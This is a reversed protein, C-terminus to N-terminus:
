SWQLGVQQRKDGVLQQRGGVQRLQVGVLGQLIMHQELQQRECLQQLIRDGDVISKRM